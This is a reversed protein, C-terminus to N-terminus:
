IWWVHINCSWLLTCFYTVYNKLGHKKMTFHVTRVWIFLCRSLDASISCSFIYMLWWYAPFDFLNSIYLISGRYYFSGCKIVMLSNLAPLLHQVGTEPSVCARNVWLFSVWGPSMPELWSSGLILNGLLLDVSFSTLPWPCEWRISILRKSVAYAPTLGPCVVSVM